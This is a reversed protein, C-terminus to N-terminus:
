KTALSLLIPLQPLVAMLTHALLLSELWACTAGLPRQVSSGTAGGRQETKSSGLEVQTVFM